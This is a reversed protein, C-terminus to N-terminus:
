DNAKLLLQYPMFNFQKIKKKEHLHINLFLIELKCFLIWLISLEYIYEFFCFCSIFYILLQNADFKMLMMEFLMEIRTEPVLFVQSTSVEPPIRMIQEHTFTRSM